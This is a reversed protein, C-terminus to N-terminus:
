ILLGLVYEAYLKPICVVKECHASMEFGSYWTTDHVIFHLCTVALSIDNWNMEGKAIKHPVPM